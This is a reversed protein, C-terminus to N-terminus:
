TDLLYSRHLNKVWVMMASTSYAGITTGTMPDILDAGAQDGDTFYVIISGSPSRRIQEAGPYRNAIMGTLEAVNISSSGWVKAQTRELFPNVSLVAGTIALVVVLLAALLGSWSHFKRFM